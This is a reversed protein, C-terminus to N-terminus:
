LQQVLIGASPRAYGGRSRHPNFRTYLDIAELAPARHRDQRLAHACTRGQPASGRHGTRAFLTRPPRLGASRFKTCRFIRPICDPM